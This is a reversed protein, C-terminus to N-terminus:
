IPSEDKALQLIKDIFPTAVSEKLLSYAEKDQNTQAAIDMKIATYEARAWKHKRLFDRFSLHRKLERSDKPCAYLYHPITDLIAHPLIGKKRKFAERQPVGQNGNHYYGLTTM